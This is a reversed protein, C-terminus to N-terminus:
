GPKPGRLNNLRLFMTVPFPTPPKLQFTVNSRYETEVMAPVSTSYSCEVIRLNLRESLIPKCFDCPCPLSRKAYKGQIPMKLASDYDTETYIM